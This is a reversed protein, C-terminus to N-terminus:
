IDGKIISKPNYYVTRENRLANQPVPDYYIWRGDEKKDVHAKFLKQLADFAEQKTFGIGVVKDIGIPLSRKHINYLAAHVEPVSEYIARDIRQIKNALERKFDRM